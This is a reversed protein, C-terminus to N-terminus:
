VPHLGTAAKELGTVCGIRRTNWPASPGCSSEFPRRAPAGQPLEDLPLGCGCGIAVDSVSAHKSDLFHSDLQRIPSSRALAHQATRARWAHEPGRSTSARRRPKAGPLFCDRISHEDVDVLPRQTTAGMLWNHGNRSM